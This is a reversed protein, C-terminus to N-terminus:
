YSIDTKASHQIHQLIHNIHYVSWIGQLGFHNVTSLIQFCDTRRCNIISKYYNINTKVTKMVSQINFVREFLLESWCLSYLKHLHCCLATVCVKMRDDSCYMLVNNVLCLRENDVASPLHRYESFSWMIKTKVSKQSNATSRILSWLLHSYVSVRFSYLCIWLQAKTM